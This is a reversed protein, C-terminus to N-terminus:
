SSLYYFFLCVRQKILAFTFKLRQKLRGIGNSKSPRPIELSEVELTVKELEKLTRFGNSEIKSFLCVCRRLKLRLLGYGKKENLWKRSGM